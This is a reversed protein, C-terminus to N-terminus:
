IRGGMMADRVDAELDSEYKDSLSLYERRKQPTYDDDNSRHFGRGAGSRSAAKARAVDAQERARKATEYAHRLDVVPNGTRTFDKSLLIREIDGALADFDPAQQRAQEVLAHTNVLGRAEHSAAFGGDATNAYPTLMQIMQAANLGLNSGLTLLGARPDKRLTDELNVYARVAQPLTTGSEKARTKYGEFEHEEAEKYRVEEFARKTSADLDDENWRKREDLTMENYREGLTDDPHGSPAAYGSEATDNAQDREM